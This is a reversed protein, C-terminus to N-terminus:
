KDKNLPFKTFKLWNKKKIYLIWPDFWVVKCTHGTHVSKCDLFNKSVVYLLQIHHLAMALRDEIRGCILVSIRSSVEGKPSECRWASEALSIRAQYIEENM